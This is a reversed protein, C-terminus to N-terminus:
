AGSLPISAHLDQILKKILENQAIDRESIALVNEYASTDVYPELEIQIADRDLLAHIGFLRYGEPLISVVNKVEVNAKAFVDPRWEFSIPPAMATLLTRMGQIAEYESGEIDLKVFAVSKVKLFSVLDDITTVRALESRRNDTKAGAWGEILSGAAFNGFPSYLPLYEFQSAREPSTAAFLAVTYPIPSNLAVNYTLESAVGASAEVGVVPIGSKALPISTSGINGGVDLVTRGPFCRSFFLGLAVPVLDFYGQAFIHWGIHDNVNVRYRVGLVGVTSMYKTSRVANPRVYRILNPDFLASIYRRSRGSANSLFKVAWLVPRFRLYSAIFLGLRAMFAVVHFMTSLMPTDYPSKSGGTRVIAYEFFLKPTLIAAGNSRFLKGFMATM